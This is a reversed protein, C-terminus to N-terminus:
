AQYVSSESHEKYLTQDDIKAGDSSRFFRSTVHTRNHVTLTAFAYDRDNGWAYGEPFTKQETLGEINGAAGAVLYVPAKPNNYGATDSKNGHMPLFRQSNHEHGFWALDVGHRYLIDDFAAGCAECAEDPSNSTYWPRHGGAFVWPTVRRDVSALDARLWDLQQGKYGFPGSFLNAAEIGDPSDEFDTETNIMVIHALGYDFSYWMPPNALSAAKKRLEVATKNSSTSDFAKPHTLAFRGRFETFNSYGQPCLGIWYGSETCDAEHNGPGVMYPIRGSIPALQDYFREEVAEYSAVGERADAVNWYWDDSYALDGAHAIFDLGHPM